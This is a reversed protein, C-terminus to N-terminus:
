LADIWELTICISMLLQIQYASKHATKNMEVSTLYIQYIM